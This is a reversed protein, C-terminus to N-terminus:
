IILSSFLGLCVGKQFLSRNREMVQLTLNLSQSLAVSPLPKDGTSSSRCDGTDVKRLSSNRPPLEPPVIDQLNPMSVVMRRHTAHSASAKRSAM